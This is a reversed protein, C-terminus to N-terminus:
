HYVVSHHFTNIKDSLMESNIGRGFRVLYCMVGIAIALVSSGLSLKQPIDPRQFFQGAKRTGEGILTATVAMTAITGFAYASLFALNRSWTAVAIVQALSPAGDWCFGRLLGNFVVAREQSTKCYSIGADAAAASLNQPQVGNIIDDEWELGAM